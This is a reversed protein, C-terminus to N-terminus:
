FTNFPWLVSILGFLFHLRATRKKYATSYLVSYLAVFRLVCGTCFVCM